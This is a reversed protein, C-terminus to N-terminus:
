FSILWEAGRVLIEFLKPSLRTTIVKQYCSDIPVTYWLSSFYYPLCLIVDALCFHKSGMVQRRTPIIQYLRKLGSFHQLDLM